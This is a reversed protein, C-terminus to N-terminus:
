SHPETRTDKSYGAAFYPSSSRLNTVVTQTTTSVVFEPLELSKIYDLHEGAASAARNLAPWRQAPLTAAFERYRALLRRSIIAPQIGVLFVLRDLTLHAVRRNILTRVSEALVRSPVWAENYDIAVVDGERRRKLTCTLFDDISRAHLLLSEVLINNLLWDADSPTLMLSLDGVGRALLERSTLALMEVEYAIHGAMGDLESPTLATHKVCAAYALDSASNCIFHLCAKSCRSLLPCESKRDTKSRLGHRIILMHNVFRKQRIAPRELADACDLRTYFQKIRAGM